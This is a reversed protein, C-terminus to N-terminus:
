FTVLKKIRRPSEFIKYNRKFFESVDDNILSDKFVAVLHCKGNTLLANLMLNNYSTSVKSYSQYLRKKALLSLAALPSSPENTDTNRQTM